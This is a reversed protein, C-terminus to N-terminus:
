LLDVTFGKTGYYLLKEAATRLSVFEDHQSTIDHQVKKFEDKKAELSQLSEKILVEQKAKEKRANGLKSNDEAISATLKALRETKVKFSDRMVSFQISQGLITKLMHLREKLWSVDIKTSEVDELDSEFQNLCDMKLGQAVTGKLVSIIDCITEICLAKLKLNKLSSKHAIDGYKKVIDQWTSKHAASIPYKNVISDLEEIDMRVPSPVPALSSGPLGMSSPSYPPVAIPTIADIPPKVSNNIQNEKGLAAEITVKAEAETTVKAEAETTIADTPPKVSNNIQNEEGLAAETTVKAEAETTIADTPPKVSTAEAPSVVPTSGSETVTVIEAFEEALRRLSQEFRLVPHQKAMKKLRDGMPITYWGLSEQTLPYRRKKCSKVLRTISSQSALQVATLLSTPSPTTSTAAPPSVKRNHVYELFLPVNPYRCQEYGVVSPSKQFCIIDGDVLQSSRFTLKKDIPECMVNPEFKIEEYLEIEENPAFCAMENLKPLIEVPKGSGKVFLRGVYRFEEKEPDYLKFFLLINEKTTEPPIPLLDPDFEVELFLNLEANHANNSVERLQEVEVVKEAVDWSFCYKDPYALAWVLVIFLLSIAGVYGVCGVGKSDVKGVISPWIKSPGVTSSWKTEDIEMLKGGWCIEVLTYLGNGGAALM